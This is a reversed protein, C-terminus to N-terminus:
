YWLLNTPEKGKKTAVKGKTKQNNLQLGPPNSSVPRTVAVKQEITMVKWTIQQLTELDGWSTTLPGQQGSLGTIKEEIAKLFKGVKYTISTSFTGLINNQAISHTLM